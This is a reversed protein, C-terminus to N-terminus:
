SAVNGVYLSFRKTEGYGACTELSWRRQKAGMRDLLRDDGECKLLSPLTQHSVGNVLSPLGHDATGRKGGALAEDASTMWNGREGPSSTLQTPWCM